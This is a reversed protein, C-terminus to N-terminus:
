ALSVRRRSQMFAFGLGAFGLLMMAWTSPEPVGSTPVFGDVVSYDFGFASTMVLNPVINGNPDLLEFQIPDSFSSMSSPQDNVNAVTSILGLSLQASVSFVISSLVYNNGGSFRFLSSFLGSHNVGSNPFTNVAGSLTDYSFGSVQKSLGNPQVSENVVLGASGDPINITTQNDVILTYNGPQLLTLRTFTINGFNTTSQFINITDTFSGIATATAFNFPALPNTVASQGRAGSVQLDINGGSVQADATATNTGACPVAFGCFTPDSSTDSLSAGFVGSASQLDSAGVAGGVSTSVTVSAGQAFVQTTSVLTLTVVLATFAARLFRDQM